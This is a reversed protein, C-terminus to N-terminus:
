NKSPWKKNKISAKTSLHSAEKEQSNTEKLVASPPYLSYSTKIIWKIKKNNNIKQIINKSKERIKYKDM